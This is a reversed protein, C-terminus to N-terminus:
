AGGDETLVFGATKWDGFAAAQERGLQVHEQPTTASESRRAIDEIRAQADARLETAAAIDKRTFCGM